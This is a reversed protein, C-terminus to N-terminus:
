KKNVLSRLMLTSLLLKFHQKIKIELRMGLQIIKTSPQLIVNIVVLLVIIITISNKMENADLIQYLLDFDNIVTAYTKYKELFSKTIKTFRLHLYPLLIALSSHTQLSYPTLGLNIRTWNIVFIFKSYNQSDPTLM